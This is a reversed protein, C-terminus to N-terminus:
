GMLMFPLMYLCETSEGVNRSLKERWWWSVRPKNRECGPIHPSYEPNLGFVSGPDREESPVGFIYAM